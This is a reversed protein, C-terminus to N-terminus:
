DLARFPLPRDPNDLRQRMLQRTARVDGLDDDWLGPLCPRPSEPTYFRFSGGLDCTGISAAHNPPM